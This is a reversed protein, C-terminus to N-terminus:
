INKEPLFTSVCTKPVPELFGFSESPVQCLRFIRRFPINNVVAQYMARLAGVLGNQVTYLDAGSYSVCTKPQSDPSKITTEPCNQVM